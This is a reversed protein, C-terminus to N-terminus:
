NSTELLADSVEEKLETNILCYIDADPLTEKLLQLFYSIAPLVSFFEKDEFNSFKFEGLPAGCWSDNTGGFVFVTDIKNKEFFGEESLKRLRRIFSSSKSCDSNEYGTYGITSGSWSDNLVLKSNTETILSYWWTKEVSRVDCDKEKSYYVAYGNPIYGEFTSYSDVFLLVNNFNM